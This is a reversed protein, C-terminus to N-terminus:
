SEDGGVADLARPACSRTTNANENPQNKAPKARSKTNKCEKRPTEPEPEPGPNDDFVGDCVDDIGDGDSDVGSDYLVVCSDDANLVGDGDFDDVTHALAFSQQRDVRVGRSDVGSVHLQHAGPPLADPLQVTVALTGDAEVRYSGLEIRESRVYLQVQSLSAYDSLYLTMQGSVLDIDRVMTDRIQLQVPIYNDTGENMRSVEASARIGLSLSPEPVRTRVPEPMAKTLQDTQQLLADRYLQHAEPTPHFSESGFVGLSGLGIWSFSLRVDNGATVGNMYIESDPVDSCLRSGALIDEVDVYVVGAEAAAAAVVDNFYRTAAVAFSIEAANLGVNNACSGGPEFFVPYGHVYVRANPAAAQVRRYASALRQKQQAIRVVYERSEDSDIDAHGCLSTSVNLLCSELFGGFDADNGGVGLTIVDPDFAQRPVPDTIDQLANAQASVGPQWIGLTADRNYRYQNDTEAFEYAEGATQRDGIVGMINHIKAGSCAVSHFRGDAPPTSGNQALYGTDMALLYPYSRRSLHCLNRDTFTSADGQEDTDPEYWTGGQLDGEGSSFSDGLALYGFSTPTYDTPAITVRYRPYEDSNRDLLDIDFRSSDHDFWVGTVTSRGMSADHDGLVPRIAQQSCGDITFPTAYSPLEGVAFSTTCGSLDHFTPASARSDSSVVYNGDASVAIRWSRAARSMRAFPTMTRDAMDIRVLMGHSLVAVAYAGNVSFAWSRFLMNSGDAYTLHPASSTVRWQKSAETGRYGVALEGIAQLNYNISARSMGSPDSGYRTAKIVADTMPVPIFSGGSLSMMDYKDGTPSWLIGGTGAGRAFLGNQAYTVCADEIFRTYTSGPVANYEVDGSLVGDIDASQKFVKVGVTERECHEQIRSDSPLPEVNQVTLDGSWASGEVSQARQSPIILGSAQMVLTLLFVGVTALIGAKQRCLNSISGRRAVVQHARYVM